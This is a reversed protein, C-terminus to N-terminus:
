VSVLYKQLASVGYLVDGESTTVVPVARALPAKVLLEEKTYDVGLKLVEYPLKRMKIIAVAQVCQPCDEKSYVTLM